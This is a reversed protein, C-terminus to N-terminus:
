VNYLPVEDYLPRVCCFGTVLCGRRAWGETNGQQQKKGRSQYLSFVSLAVEMTKHDEDHRPEM